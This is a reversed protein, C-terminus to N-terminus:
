WTSCSSRSSAPTTTSPRWRSRRARRAADGTFRRLFRNPGIVTIDYAGAAGVPGTAKVTEVGRTSPAVTYQGPFGAPYSALAPPVSLQQRVRLLAGRPGRVARQQQARPDRRRHRQREDPQREAPVAAAPRSTGPSRAPMVDSGTGPQVLQGRRGAAPSSRCTPLGYVPHEFDFAGTLDGCVSRRWASINECLAPSASRTRGSRWFQMVSTHDSVESNVWGGRSWPSILMLPVRFGLGTPLPVAPIM